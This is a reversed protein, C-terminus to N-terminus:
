SAKSKNTENLNTHITEFNQQKTETNRNKALEEEFYSKQKKIIM